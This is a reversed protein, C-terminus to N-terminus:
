FLTLQSLVSCHLVSRFITNTKSSNCFTLLFLSVIVLFPLYNHCFNCSCLFFCIRVTESYQTLTDLRKISGYYFQHPTPLFRSLFPQQYCLLFQIMALSVSCFISLVNGIATGLQLSYFCQFNM